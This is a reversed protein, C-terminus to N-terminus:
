LLCRVPYLNILMSEEPYRNVVRERCDPHELSCPDNSSPSLLTGSTSSRPNNMQVLTLAGDIKRLLSYALSVYPAIQENIEAGLRARAEKEEVHWRVEIVPPAEGIWERFTTSISRFGPARPSDFKCMGSHTAEIGYYTVGPLQPSASGPDVILMRNQIDTFQGDLWFGPKSPMSQAKSM